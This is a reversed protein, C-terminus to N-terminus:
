IQGPPQCETVAASVGIPRERADPTGVRDGRGTVVHDVARGTYAARILKRLLHLFEDDGRGGSLYIPMSSIGSVAKLTAGHRSREAGAFETWRRFRRWAFRIGETTLTYSIPVAMLLGASIVALIPVWWPVAGAKAAIISIGISLLAPWLHMRLRALLPLRATMLRNGELRRSGFSSLRAWGAALFAITLSLLLTNMTLMTSSAPRWTTVPRLFHAFAVTIRAGFGSTVSTWPVGAAMRITRPVHLCSTDSRGM